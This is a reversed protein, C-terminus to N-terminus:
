DILGQRGSLLTQCIRKADLRWQDIWNGSLHCDPMQWLWKITHLPGNIMVTNWRPRMDTWIQRKQLCSTVGQNQQAVRTLYSTIMRHNSKKRHNHLSFSRMGHLFCHKSHNHLQLAVTQSNLERWCLHFYNASVTSSLTVLRTQSAGHQILYRVTNVPAVLMCDARLECDEMSLSSLVDSSEM